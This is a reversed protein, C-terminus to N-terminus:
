WPRNGHLGFETPYFPPKEKPQAPRGQMSELMATEEGAVYSGHGEFIELELDVGSGLVNQGLFGRTRAQGLAKELSARAALFEANLYIYAERAGITFAAILCGEILQHPHHEVLYRDKFTGPEHEGANCVFYRETERHHVVKDWKLGTPFGAGGRGRLSARKLEDIVRDPDADRVVQQWAEYGGTKVYGDIDWPEADLPALLRLPFKDTM